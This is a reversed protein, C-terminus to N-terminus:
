SLHVWRKKDHGNKLCLPRNTGACRGKKHGEAQGAGRRFPCLRFILHSNALSATSISTSSFHAVITRSNSRSSYLSLWLSVRRCQERSARFRSSARSGELTSTNSATASASTLLFRYSAMSFSLGWCLSSTQRM